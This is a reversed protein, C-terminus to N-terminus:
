TLPEGVGWRAQHVFVDAGAFIEQRLDGPGFHDDNRLLLCSDFRAEPLVGSGHVIARSRTRQLFRRKRKNAWRVFAKRSREAKVCAKATATTM